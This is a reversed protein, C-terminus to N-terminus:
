HFDSNDNLLLYDDNISKLVKRGIYPSIDETISKIVCGERPLNSFPYLISDGKTFFNYIKEQNFPGICILPVIPISRSDCTDKFESYDMWHDNLMIDYAYFKIEGEKCGYDYNKQIGHGIIEGYIVEGFKLKRQLDYDVAVKAYINEDYFGKYKKHSSNLQVNKSGYIFEYEPFYGFFKKMKKWYTNVENKVWGCRFSSGHIKESIYVEEGEKFVKPHNKINEIDTYKHFNSNIYMKKIKNCKGYISPQEVPPEYKTIGLKLALDDGEKYKTIGIQEPKIVLGQSVIKRLKITQVRHKHLKIKSDEGFIKSELEEPLISDIPIYLVLDDVLFFDKQVVCNWNKITVIDLRDAYPHNEVKEIKCIEVKLTSM